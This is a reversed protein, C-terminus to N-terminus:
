QHRFLLSILIFYYSRLYHKNCLIKFETMACVIRHLITPSSLHINDRNFNELFHKGTFNQLVFFFHIFVLYINHLKFVLIFIQFYCCLYRTLCLPINYKYILHKIKLLCPQSRSTRRCWCCKCCQRGRIKWSICPLQGSFLFFSTYLLFKFSILRIQKFPTM